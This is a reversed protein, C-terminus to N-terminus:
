HVLMKMSPHQARDLHLLLCQHLIWSHMVNRSGYKMNRGHMRTLVSITRWMAAFFSTQGIPFLIFRELLLSYFLFTILM